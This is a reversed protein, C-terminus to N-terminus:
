EIGNFQPCGVDSLEVPAAMLGPILCNNTDFIRNIRNLSQTACKEVSTDQFMIQLFNSTKVCEANLFNKIDDVVPQIMQHQSDPFMNSKLSDLHAKFFEEQCKYRPINQRLLIEKELLKILFMFPLSDYFEGLFLASSTLFKVNQNKIFFENVIDTMDQVIFNSSLTIKYKYCDRNHLGDRVKNIYFHKVQSTSIFFHRIKRTFCEGFLNLICRSIGSNQPSERYQDILLLWCQYPSLNKNCYLFKKVSSSPRNDLISNITMIIIDERSLEEPNKM